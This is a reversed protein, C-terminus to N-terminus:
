QRELRARSARYDRLARALKREAQAAHKSMQAQAQAYGQLLQAQKRAAQAPAAVGPLKRARGELAAIPTARAKEHLARIRARSAGLMELSLGAQALAVELKDLLAELKRAHKATAREQSPLRGRFQASFTVAWKLRDGNKRLAALVRPKAQASRRLLAGHERLLQKAEDQPTPM